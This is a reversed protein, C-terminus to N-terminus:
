LIAQEISGKRKFDKPTYGTELKFFTNFVSKSKFGAELAIAEITLNEYNVDLLLKKAEEARYKNIYKNFNQGSYQNILYSVKKPHIDVFEALNMVTLNSNKYCKSEIIFDEIKKFDAKDNITTDKNNEPIINTKIFIEFDAPIHNQKIGFITIWYLFLLSIISDLLFIIDRLTNDLFSSLTILQFAYTLMLFISTSILWKLNVKQTNSFFDLYKKNYNIVRILISSILVISLSPLLIGYVVTFFMVNENRFQLSFKEPMCFMTTMFLCEIIGPILFLIIKKRSLKELLSEAYLYYLPVVFFYFGTPTYFFRPHKDISVQTSILHDIVPSVFAILFFGFLVATTKMKKFFLLYVLAFFAQALGIYLFIINFDQINM